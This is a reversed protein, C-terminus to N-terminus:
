MYISSSLLKSSYFHSGIYGNLGLYGMISHNKTQKRHPQAFPFDSSQKIELWEQQLITHYSLYIRGIHFQCIRLNAYNSTFSIWDYVTVCRGESAIDKLRRLWFLFNEEVNLSCFMISHILLNGATINTLYKKISGCGNIRTVVHLSNFNLCKIELVSTLRQYPTLCCELKIWCSQETFKVRAMAEPWLLSGHLMNFANVTLFLCISIFKDRNQTVIVICSTNVVLVSKHSLSIWNYISYYLHIHVIYFVFDM